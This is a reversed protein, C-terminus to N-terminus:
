NEVATGYQAICKWNLNQQQMWANMAQEFNAPHNVAQIPHIYGAWVLVLIIDAVKTLTLKQNLQEHIKYISLPEQALFKLIYEFYPVVDHIKGIKPDNNLNKGVPAKPLLGFKITKYNLEMHEKNIKDKNKSYIDQRQLTNRAIDKVTEQLTVLPLSKVIKQIHLPLSFAHINEIIGASATYSLGIKAFQRIMDASHQPQWYESLFDHAIYNSKEQSLELLDQNLSPVKLFLGVNSQGVERVLNLSQVAKTASNGSLNRSVETMLKQISTFGTAGPHSMYSCYLIGNEKLLKAIIKTMINQNKPSVWSWVGHTIIFDFPELEQKLFEEFSAQIFEINDIKTQDLANRAIDIQQPNFDVGVFQGIPNAAATLHLHIGMACGLELYRYPKSLDPSKLGELQVITKLWVPMAQRHVFIPYTVDVVYGDQLLSMYM